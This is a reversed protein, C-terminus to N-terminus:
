NGENMILGDTEIGSCMNRYTVQQGGREGRGLGSDSDISVNYISSSPPKFTGVNFGMDHLQGILSHLRWALAVVMIVLGLSFITIFIIFSTPVSASIVMGDSNLSSATQTQAIDSDNLYKGMIDGDPRNFIDPTITRNGLNDITEQYWHVPAFHLILPPSGKYNPKQNMLSNCIKPKYISSQYTLQCSCSIRIGQFGYSMQGVQYTEYVPSPYPPIVSSCNITVNDNDDVRERYWLYTATPLSDMGGTDILQGEYKDKPSCSLPCYKIVDKAIEKNKMSKEWMYAATICRSIKRPHLATPIHCLKGPTCDSEYVVNKSLDVLVYTESSTTLPLVQPDIQCQWDSQSEEDHYSFLLPTVKIMAYKEKAPIVPILIRVLFTDKTFTCDTIPSKYYNGVTDTSVSPHLNEVSLKDLMESLTDSLLSPSLISSPIRGAECDILALKWRNSEMMYNEFILANLTNVANVWIAADVRGDVLDIKLWYEQYFKRRMEAYVGSINYVYNSLGSFFEDSGLPSCAKLRSLYEELTIKDVFIDDFHPEILECDFPIFTTEPTANIDKLNVVLPQNDGFYNLFRDHVENMYYLVPCTTFFKTYDTANCAQSGQIITESKNWRPITVQYILPVFEKYFHASSPNTHQLYLGSVVQYNENLIKPPLDLAKLCIPQHFFFLLFSCKLIVLNRQILSM